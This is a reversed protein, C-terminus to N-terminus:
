VHYSGTRFHQLGALGSIRFVTLNASNQIPYSIRSEEYSIQHPQFWEFMRSSNSINFLYTFHYFLFSKVNGTTAELLLYHRCLQHILFSIKKNKWFYFSKKTIQTSSAEQEMPYTELSPDQCDRNASASGLHTMGSGFSSRIQPDTNGGQRGPLDLLV